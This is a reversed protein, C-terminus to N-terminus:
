RSDTYFPSDGGERACDKDSDKWPKNFYNLRRITNAYINYSFASSSLQSMLMNIEVWAQKM